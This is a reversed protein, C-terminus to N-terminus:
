KFYRFYTESEGSDGKAGKRRKNLAIKWGLAMAPMAINKPLAIPCPNENFTIKPGDATDQLSDIDDDEGQVGEPM